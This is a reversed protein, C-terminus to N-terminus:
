DTNWAVPGGAGFERDYDRTINAAKVQALTAGDDIMDQIRDRIITVMDRYFVLALEDSRGTVM